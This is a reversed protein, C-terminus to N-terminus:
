SFLSIFAPLLSHLSYNKEIHKRGAEGMSSRLATDAILKKLYIKWEDRNNAIFGTQDHLTILSNVQTPS